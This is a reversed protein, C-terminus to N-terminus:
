YVHPLVCMASVGYRESVDRAEDVDCKFFTVNSFENSLGEYTPAIM